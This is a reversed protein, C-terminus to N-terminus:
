KNNILTRIRQKGQPWEFRGLEYDGFINHNYYENQDSASELGKYVKVPVKCYDQTNGNQFTITLIGNEQDYSYSKISRSFCLSNTM